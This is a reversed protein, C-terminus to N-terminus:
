SSFLTDRILRRHQWPVWYFNLKKCAVKKKILFCSCLPNLFIQAFHKGIKSGIRKALYENRLM